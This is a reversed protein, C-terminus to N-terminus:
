NQTIWATDEDKVPLNLLEYEFVPIAVCRCGYDEGPNCFRGDDTEPPNKYDFIEGNESRRNLERHSERVREDGSDSWRYGVVGADEHEKQTIRANLKSMQDRAIFQAHRKETGYAEHIEQMIETTVKGNEYGNKIIEKMRGLTNHPITKILDVNESVWQEILDQFFDGSYYDENLDVNLTQKVMRKWERIETNKTISGVKRLGKIMRGFTGMEELSTMTKEFLSDFFHDVFTLLDFLGDHHIGKQDEWQRRYEEKMKPMEAEIISKFDKSFGNMLRIYEREATVPFKPEAKGYLRHHSGFKRRLRDQTHYSYYMKPM